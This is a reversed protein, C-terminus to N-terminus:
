QKQNIERTSEPQVHSARRSQVNNLAIGMPHLPSLFVQGLPEDVAWRHLTVLFQDGRREEGLMELIRACRAKASQKADITTFVIYFDKDPHLRSLQKYKEIKGKIGKPTFYDETGRDVEWFYIKGGMVMQRDPKLGLRENEDYGEPREWHSVVGTTEYAVYLDGCLREHEEGHKSVATVTPLHYYEPTTPSIHKCKIQGDAAM